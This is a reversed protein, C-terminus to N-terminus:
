LQFNAYSDLICQNILHLGMGRRKQLSPEISTALPLRTVFINSNVRDLPKKKFDSTM